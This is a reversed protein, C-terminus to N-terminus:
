RISDRLKPGNSESLFRVIDTIVRAGHESEFMSQAHSNGNLVILSKPSPVEEFHRLLAPLRPGSGSSDDSTMIYLKPCKLDKAPCTPTSGLLILRDIAGPKELAATAAASGGMSAGVVSVSKAGHTRLYEVGALVDLHLPASLPDKDGPGRSQGYGRFDIALVRFGAAALERAQRLWSGKNFRGGHALLVATEAAGYIDAVLEGGDSSAFRVESEQGYVAVLNLQYL